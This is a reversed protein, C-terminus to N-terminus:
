KVVHCIPADIRLVERSEPLKVEDYVGGFAAHCEERPGDYVRWSEDLEFNLDVDFRVDRRKLKRRYGGREGCLMAAGREVRDDQAPTVLDMEVGRWGDGVGRGGDHGEIGERAESLKMEAAVAVRGEVIGREGVHCACPGVYFAQIQALVPRAWGGPHGEGAQAVQGRPEGVDPLQIDGQPVDFARHAFLKKLLGRKTAVDLSRQLHLAIKPRETEALRGDLGLVHGDHSRHQSHDERAKM